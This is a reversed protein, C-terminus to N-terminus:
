WGSTQRQRLADDAARLSDLDIAGRRWPVHDGPQREVFPRPLQREDGYHVANHTTLSTTILYEPSLLNETGEVIDEVTIPNMHHIIPATRIVVDKAGLDFGYDRAIIEDRLNRWTRSTYFKQNLWRMDDFTPDAVQGNLRLYEFREELTRLRSLESFTRITVPM